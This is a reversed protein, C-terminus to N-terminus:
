YFFVVVIYDGIGVLGAVSKTETETEVGVERDRVGRQERAASM